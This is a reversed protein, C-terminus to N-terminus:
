FNSSLFIVKSKLSQVQLALDNLVLVRCPQHSHCLPFSKDPPIPLFTKGFRTTAAIPRGFRSDVFESPLVSEDEPASVCM